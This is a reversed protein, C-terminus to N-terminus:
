TNGASLTARAKGRGTMRQERLATPHDWCLLPGVFRNHSAWEDRHGYNDALRLKRVNAEDGAINKTIGASDDGTSSDNSVQDQLGALGGEMAAAIWQAAHRSSTAEPHATPVPISLTHM